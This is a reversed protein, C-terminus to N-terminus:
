PSRVAVLDRDEAPRIDTATLTLVAHTHGSATVFEVEFVDPSHIHVIAGVDGLRLGRDPLDHRLVVPDLEHYTM